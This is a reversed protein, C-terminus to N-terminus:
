KRQWRAGREPHYEVSDKLAVPVGKCMREKRWNLGRPPPPMPLIFEALRSGKENAAAEDEELILSVGPSAERLELVQTVPGGDLWASAIFEPRKNKEEADEQWARALDAQSLPVEGLTKLWRRACELEAATYPLVATSGDDRQPEIVVFPWSDNKTARRNLRGLRQILAPVPALDTVLLGASLDLSMEAVQSCIALVPSEAKFAAIVRKHREVRDRYRFRSHYILPSVDVFREAAQMVRDVTNCVWLVKNKAADKNALVERILTTPDDPGLLGSRQYRQHNETDQPGKIEALPKGRNKCCVQLARLRPEPLSATMLLVPVGPLATLFRILAGFLRDDYAHIEDFVFASGALAPWAFLGRRNNQVLGLVMDVTCSVIPTSWAELSEVRAVVEHDERHRATKNGNDQQDNEVKLIDLDIQRRGHFLDPRVDQGLNMLYDRFGETATGTTPYCFYVRKGPHQRAAWLYAAVTKGTGCGARVFPTEEAKSAAVTEQFPWPPRGELVCGIMQSIAEGSPRNEFAAKIWTTRKAPDPEHRPLASGAVDAALMAVKAAAVLLRDTQETRKWLENAERYWAFIRAFANGEGVLPYTHDALQPPNALNFWPKFQNLCKVFDEHGLYATLEKDGGEVFLRPPSPRDYAPHHGAVAWLAIQWDTESGAVAPLLWDRLHEKLILLSVWEHRLGQPKGVRHGALMGQFHDNGKGLDHAAAGLLVIRVLRDRFSSDLGLASLQEDATRKLMEGAAAHVDCLHGPLFHSEEPLTGQRYSKALLRAYPHAASKM